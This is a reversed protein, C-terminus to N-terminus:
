KLLEQMVPGISSQLWSNHIRSSHFDDTGAADDEHKLHKLKEVTSVDALVHPRFSESQLKADWVEKVKIEWPLLQHLISPNSDVAHKVETSLNPQAMVSPHITEHTVEDTESPPQRRSVKAVKYIGTLPDHPPQTGWPADPQPLSTVYDYNFSLADEINAILWNLTLDSLDHEEFGGGIFDARTEDLALAQYARKIHHGLRHDPFGFINKIKQSTLTLEEPMGVSGVTDFVGIVKISFHGPGAKVRMKGSASSSTWPELEEDLLRKEEEDEAKGRKQYALFISAFHDMQTRDLVGIAGIFMAVMRATYAGRSFGFLFIEDGPRYNHAVFGYAEEVKNALSAGTVGDIIKDYLNETGIGNQYFVVQHVPPDFRDDVHNISRALRLINTYKWKQRADLGDQWTGDCCVIIRKYTDSPQQPPVGADYKGDDFM